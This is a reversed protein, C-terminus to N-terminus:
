PQDGPKAKRLRTLAFRLPAYLPGSMHVLDEIISGELDDLASRLCVAAETNGSISIDRSFFLADSDATGDMVDFLASFPGAITADPDLQETRRHATLGPADPDPRLRLVFSLEAVDIVYTSHIHPGLREFLEPRQRAVERVMRRLISQIPFLPLPATIKGILRPLNDAAFVSQRPLAPAARSTQHPM